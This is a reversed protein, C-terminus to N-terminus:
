HIAEIAIQCNATISIGLFSLRPTNAYSSTFWSSIIVLGNLGNIQSHSTNPVAHTMIMAMPYGALYRLRTYKFEIFKNAFGRIKCDRTNSMYCLIQLGLIM